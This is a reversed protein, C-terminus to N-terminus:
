QVLQWMSAWLLVDIKRIPVSFLKKRVLYNNEKLIETSFRVCTHQKPFEGLLTVLLVGFLPSWLRGEFSEGLFLFCLEEENRSNASMFPFFFFRLFFFFAAQIQQSSLRHILIALQQSKTSRNPGSVDAVMKMSRSWGVSITRRQETERDHCRKPGFSFEVWM